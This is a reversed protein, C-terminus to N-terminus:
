SLSVAFPRASIVRPNRSCAAAISVTTLTRECFSRSINGRSKFFNPFCAAGIRRHTASLGFAGSSSPNVRSLRVLRSCSYSEATGGNPTSREANPTQKLEQLKWQALFGGDVPIYTGTAAFQMASFRLTV